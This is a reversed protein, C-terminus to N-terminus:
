DFMAKLLQERKYGAKLNEGLAAIMAAALMEQAKGAFDVAALLMASKHGVLEKKIEPLIEDKVWAVVYEKVTEAAAGTASYELQTLVKEKFEKTISPLSEDLLKQIQEPSLLM